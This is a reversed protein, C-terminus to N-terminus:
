FDLGFQGFNNKEMVLFAFFRHVFTFFKSTQKSLEASNMVKTASFSLCATFSRHHTTVACYRAHM